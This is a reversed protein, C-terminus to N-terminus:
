FHAKFMDTHLVRKAFTTVSKWWYYKDNAFQVYNNDIM